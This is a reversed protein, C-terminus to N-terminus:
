GGFAPLTYMRVCAWVSNHCGWVNGPTALHHWLFVVGASSAQGLVEWRLLPGTERLEQVDQGTRGPSM